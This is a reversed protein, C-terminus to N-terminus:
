GLTYNLKMGNPTVLKRRVMEDILQEVAKAGPAGGHHRLYATITQALKKRNAPRGSLRRLHEVIPSIIPDFKDSSVPKPMAPPKPAPKAAKASVTKAKIPKASPKKVPM